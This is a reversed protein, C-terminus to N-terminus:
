KAGQYDLIIKYLEEAKKKPLRKILTKRRQEIIQISKELIPLDYVAKFISVSTIADLLISEEQKFRKLTLVGNVITIEDWGGRAKAEFMPEMKNGGAKLGFMLNM